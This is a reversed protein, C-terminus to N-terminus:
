DSYPRVLEGVLKSFLVNTATLLHAARRMQHGSGRNLGLKLQREAFIELRRLRQIKKASNGDIM